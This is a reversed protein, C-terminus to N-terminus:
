ETASRWDIPHYLTQCNRRTLTSACNSAPSLRTGAGIWTRVSSPGSSWTTDACWVIHLDPRVLVYDVGYVARASPQDVDIITFPVSEAEFAAELTEVISERGNLCLLTFGSRPVIDQIAKQGPTVWVHPLRLGPRTIPRYRRQIGNVAAGGGGVAGTSNHDAADPGPATPEPLLPSGAYSYGLEIGEMDGARAENRDALETLRRRGEATSLLEPTIAARWAQRAHFRALSYAINAAGVPRREAEYTQLLQEPAWGKIVAELKWALNIADGVGTNMGLGAAPPMLHAADGALHVRGASYSEALMARMTWPGAYLVEHEVHRGVVQEFRASMENVSRLMSHLTFHRTDDQVILFSQHEDLVHYHRGKHPLLGYLEDSRVLGQYIDLLQPNGELKVGLSKRVTSAGGDCGILYSANLHEMTGDALRLSVHVADLGQEFAVLESGWLVQLSPLAEAVSRLLPELTYQSTLQYTELPMSGDNIEIGRLRMERVSPQPHHVLPDSFASECIFVDMPLEEPLGAARVQDALGLARFHEMTRPNVREMKPLPSPTPLKDIITAEIGRHALDIALTLGVPGAGVILVPTVPSGVPRPTGGCLGVSSGSSAM